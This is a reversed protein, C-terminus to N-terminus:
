RDLAISDGALQHTMRLIITSGAALDAKVPPNLRNYKKIMLAKDADSIRCVARKAYLVALKKVM